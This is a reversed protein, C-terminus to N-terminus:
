EGLDQIQKYIEFEQTAIKQKEKLVEKYFYLSKKGNENKYDKEKFVRIYDQLVDFPKVARVAMERPYGNDNVLEQRRAEVERNIFGMAEDTLQKDSLIRKVISDMMEEKNKIELLLEKRQERLEEVKDQNKGEGYITETVIPGEEKLFQLLQERSIKENKDRGLSLYDFVGSYELEEHKVQNKGANSGIWDRWQQESASDFQKPAGAVMSALKSYFIPADANFVAGFSINGGNPTGKGDIVYSRSDKILQLIEGNTVDKFQMGIARLAQRIINVVKQLLTPNTNTEAMEALVEEVALQKGMGNAIKVDARDKVDKNGDYISNMVQNYKEGLIKRLGFHGTIEHLITKLVDHADVLNKSVLFVTGTNPDFVGGVKVIGEKEIQEQIYDPLQKESEVVSIPPANKWDAVTDSAITQVENRTLIGEGKAQSFASPKQLTEIYEKLEKEDQTVDKGAAKDRAISQRIKNIEKMTRNLADSSQSNIEKATTQLEKTSPFKSKPTVAETNATTTTGKTETKPKVPPTSKNTEKPIKTENLTGPKGEKGGAPRETIDKVNAVRPARPKTAGKTTTTTPRNPVPVSTGSTTSVPRPENTREQLPLEAQTAAVNFGANKLNQVPATMRSNASANVLINGIKKQDEPNTMDLGVLQKYFVSQPSFGLNKLATADLVKSQTTEPAPAQEEVPAPGKPKFGPITAQVPPGSPGKAKKEKIGMQNEASTIASKIDVAREILKRERENINADLGAKALEAQFLGGTNRYQPAFNEVIPLLLELRQKEIDSTEKRKILDQIERVEFQLKPLAAQARARIQEINEQGVKKEVNLQGATRGGQLPLGMQETPTAAPAQQQPQNPAENYQGAAQIPQGFMEQQNMNPIPPPANSPTQQESPEGFKFPPRLDVPPAPQQGSQVMQGLQGQLQEQPSGEFLNGQIQRRQPTQVQQPQGAVTLATGPPPPPAPQNDINEQVNKKIQGAEIAAGPAGFMTGGISGKIASNIVRDLNTPDLLSKPDGAMQSGMIQLIEQAGETLGEGASTKGLSKAFEKKWTTPVLDSKAAIETALRKKGAETFQSLLKAPLFTDLLSVVAGIPIAIDPRMQGTDEYIGQFTDPINIGASATGVGIKSGLNKQAGVKLANAAEQKAIESGLAEKAAELKIGKEAAYKAAMEEVAKAGGRRALAGLGFSGTLASAAFAGIDPGLEGFTEAAYGLGNGFSDVEKHSKFATPNAEEAKTMRDKYEKLQQLAYDDNGVTAAGLAPILEKVTGKLGEYARNFGGSVLSGLGQNRYDFPQVKYQEQIQKARAMVEERSGDPLTVIGVGPIDVRPM